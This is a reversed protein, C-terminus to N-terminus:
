WHSCPAATFLWSIGAPSQERDGYFELKVSPRLRRALGFPDIM